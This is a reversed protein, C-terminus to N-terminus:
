DGSNGNKPLEFKLPQANESGSPEAGLRRLLDGADIPFPGTTLRAAASRGGSVSQAATAAISSAVGTTTGTEAATDKDNNTNRNYTLLAGAIFTESLTTTTLYANGINAGQGSITPQTNAISYVGEGPYLSLSTTGSPATPAKMGSFATDGKYGYVGTSANIYNAALWTKLLTDWSSYSPSISAANTTVAQYNSHTSTIISKYIANSGGSQLRLWQFFLCVTAYDDLNAYISQNANSGVRNGWMFFNNGRDILGSMVRAGEENFAGNDKFWAIRDENQEGSYIYEAASSLGEDIWADMQNITNGTLRKAISTAFNMLHQMEHALTRNAYNSAKVTKFGPDTDIYIMDCLNSNSYSSLLDVPYFYGAVYSEDVGEQYTDKIDLMLICLKGNNDGVWDALKMADDFNRGSYTLPSSFATVMKQYINNDYEDAIAQAQVVTIGSGKEAWVTCRTGTYLLDADVRYYSNTKMNVAWFNGPLEPEEFLPCSFLVLSFVCILFLLKKMTINYVM